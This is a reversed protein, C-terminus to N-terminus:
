LLAVVLLVMPIMSLVFSAHGGMDYMGSAGSGNTTDNGSSDGSQNGGTSGVDSIKVALTANVLPVLGGNIHEPSRWDSYDHTLLGWPEDYDQTGERIYYGGLDWIMWGVGQAALYKELCSAFTGQWTTADQVFGFESVVLPFQNSANGSVAQFGDSYLADQLATCNSATPDGLINAYNHLELVLRDAYGQFDDANYVATGPTLPAGQVVPALTTDSNLGSLFILVDANSSHIAEAGQQSYTYWSEWNYSDIYLTQNLLPQRLENRLSM